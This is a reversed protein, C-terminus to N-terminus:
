RENEWFDGMSEVRHWDCGFRTCNPTRLPCDRVDMESTSDVGDANGDSDFSLLTWKFYFSYCFDM